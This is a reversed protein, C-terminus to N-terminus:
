KADEWKIYLKGKITSSLRPLYLIYMVVIFLILGLGYRIDVFVALLGFIIIGILYTRFEEKPTPQIIEVHEDIYKEREKKILDINQKKAILTRRGFEEELYLKYVMIWDEWPFKKFKERFYYMSIGLLIASVIELILALKGDFFLLISSIGFIILSIRFLYKFYIRQKFLNDHTM